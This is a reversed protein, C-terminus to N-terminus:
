IINISIINISHSIRKVITNTNHHFLTLKVGFEFCEAIFNRYAEIALTTINGIYFSEKRVNHKQGQEKKFWKTCICTWSYTAIYASGIVNVLLVM